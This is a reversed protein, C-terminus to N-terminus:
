LEARTFARVDARAWLVVVPTVVLAGAVDGLWWTNWISAFATWDAFGALSLSAVGISASVIPGPALSLLAFKMIGLPTAFVRTGGAWRNVCWASILAELTNGAGIIASTYVSGATFANATFAAVLIAPWLRYGWLLLAALALGTPPWVPTASPHISA